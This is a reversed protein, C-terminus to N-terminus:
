MPVHKGHEFVVFRDAPEGYAMALNIGTDVADLVKEGRAISFYFGTAFAIAAEDRVASSTGIVYPVTAAIAAAQGESYCANFLVVQIPINRREVVTRFIRGIVDSSVFFPLRKDEDNLIIGARAASPAADDLDLGGRLTSSLTDTAIDGHGSFHVINPEETILSEQFETLSVAQKLKLAFSQANPSDQLKQSVRSHEKDLQLKATGTPNSALFLIKSINGGSGKPARSDDPPAPSPMTPAGAALDPMEAPFYGDRAMEDILVLLANNVRAKTRNYASDDLMSANRERENSKWNASQLILSNQLRNDRRIEALQILAPLVDETRGHIVLGKVDNATMKM